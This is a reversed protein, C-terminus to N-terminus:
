KWSRKYRHELYHHIDEKLYEYDKYGGVGHKTKGTYDYWIVWSMGQCVTRYAEYIARLNENVGEMQHEAEANEKVVEWTPYCMIVPCAIANIVRKIFTQEESSFQCKRGMVPSYIMESFFLRDWIRPTTDANGEVELGLACYTDQRTVEYLKDRDTTAREGVVFGFDDVLQEVLTSKGAGDPGEVIIM